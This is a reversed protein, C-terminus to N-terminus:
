LVLYAVTLSTLTFGCDVTLLGAFSNETTDVLASSLNESSSRTYQRVISPHAGRRNTLSTLVLSTQVM